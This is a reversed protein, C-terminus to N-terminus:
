LSLIEIIEGTSSKRVLVPRGDIYVIEYEEDDATDGGKINSLAVADFVEVYQVQLLQFDTTKEM